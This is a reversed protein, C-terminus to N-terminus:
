KQVEKGEQRSAKEAQERHKLIVTRRAAFLIVSNIIERQGSPLNSKKALIKPFESLLFDRNFKGEKILRLLPTSKLGYKANKDAEELDKTTEAIVTDLEREFRPDKTMDASFKIQQM